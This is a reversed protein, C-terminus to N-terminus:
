LGAQRVPPASRIRQFGCLRVLQRFGRFLVELQTPYPATFGATSGTLLIHIVTRAALGCVTALRAIKAYLETKCSKLCISQSTQVSRPLTQCPSFRNIIDRKLREQISFGEDASASFICLILFRRDKPVSRFQHPYFSL